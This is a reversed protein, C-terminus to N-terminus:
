PKPLDNRNGPVMDDRGPNRLHRGAMPDNMRGFLPDSDDHGPMIM